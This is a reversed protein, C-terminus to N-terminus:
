IIYPPFGFFNNTQHSDDYGLEHIEGIVKGAFFTLKSTSYQNSRQNVRIGSIKPPHHCEDAFGAINVWVFFLPPTM